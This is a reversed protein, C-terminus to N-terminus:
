VDKKRKQQYYVIQSGITEPCLRMGFKSLKVLIGPIILARGKLAGDIGARAVRKADAPPMSFTVGARQNFETDVPGPCLLSISVPSKERRLEERVALSLRVVYNKSAYYGAMLPGTMFGAISAVNLIHGHKQAKFDQLFLKTLIHVARVNVDLMALEKELCSTDFAGFEGFGANNVLLDIEMNRCFDHLAYPAERQSLDLAIWKTDSGFAAALEELRRANRGTLVLEWGLSHLYIAMEKGIGSTAGTIVAKM